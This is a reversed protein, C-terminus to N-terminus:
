IYLFPIILRCAEKRKKRQKMHKEVWLQKFVLKRLVCVKRLIKFPLVTYINRWCMTQELGDLIFEAQVVETYIGYWDSICDCKKKFKMNTLKQDVNM